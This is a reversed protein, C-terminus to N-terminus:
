KMDGKCFIILDNAFDLHTIKTNKCMPHLKFDLLDSMKRLTRSLYKMVLVFLLHPMLDSQRLGRRGEFDVYGRGNIKISFKISSIRTMVMHVFSYPFGYGRLVEELFEWSVMDYAKMLDIKMPCRPSTKKNYHRLLDHCILVNHILSRFTAQNEAVVQLIVKKLRACIIKFVCKYLM